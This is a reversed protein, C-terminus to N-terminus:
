TFRAGAVTQGDGDVFLCSATAPSEEWGDFWTARELAVHVVGVDGANLRAAPELLGSERSRVEIAGTIQCGTKRGHQLMTLSLGQAGERPGLWTVILKAESAVRPPAATSTLLTGRPLPRDLRVRGAGLPSRELVLCPEGSPWAILEGEGQALPSPRVEHLSTWGHSDSDLQVIARLHQSEARPALSELREAVTPGSYWSMRESRKVVNDGELASIPIVELAVGLPSALARLENILKATLEESFKMADLKNICIIVQKVGLGSLMVLHRRTQLQVGREADVLLIAADATSAGTAMNRVLEVHGPVDALLLRRDGLTLHRWAVDLTIGERRELMLGDTFFALNPEVRVGIRERLSVGNGGEGKPLPNPHPNSAKRVAELEDRFVRESDLMLRGLLTSKGDDVSGAVAVRVPRSVEARVGVRERPSLSVYTASM